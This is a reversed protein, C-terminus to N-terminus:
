TKNNSAKYSAHDSIVTASKYKTDLIDATTKAYTHIPTTAIAVKLKITGAYEDKIVPYASELNLYEPYDEINVPYQRDPGDEGGFCATLNLLLIVSLLLAIVKKM